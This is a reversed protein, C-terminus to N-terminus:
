APPRVAVVYVRTATSTDTAPRGLADPLAVYVGSWGTEALMRRVDTLDFWRETMFEEFRSFRGDGDAIFGTVRRYATDVGDFVGRTLLTWTSRENVQMSNWGQMGLRTKLDFVFLGNPRTAAFVCAFCRSLSEADPLHNLADYSAICLDVPDALAFSSADARVLALDGSAIFEACNVAARDLMAQAQDVGVVRCGQRLFHLALQGTGCCLDLLTPRARAAAHQRYLAFLKPAARTAFGSWEEDYIEAFRSSYAVMAPM